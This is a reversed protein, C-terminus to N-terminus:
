LPPRRHERLDGRDRGARQCARPRHRERRVVHDEPRRDRRARQPDLARHQGRHEGGDARPGLLRRRAHGPRRRPRLGDTGPRRHLHHAFPRAPRQDRGPGGGSGPTGGGRGTGRPRSGNGVRRAPDRPPDPRLTRGPHDQDVRLGRRRRHFRPRHREPDGGDPRRPATRQALRAHRWELCAMVPSRASPCASAGGSKPGRRGM